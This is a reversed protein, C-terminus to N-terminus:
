PRVAKAIALRSRAFRKRTKAVLMKYDDDLTIAHAAKPAEQYSWLSIAWATLVLLYTASRVYPWPGSFERHLLIMTGLQAVSAGLFVGYGLIVGKLNRSMPIKYVFFVVLLAALASSQVIRLDLELKMATLAALWSTGESGAVIAKAFVLAFVFMLVNRAMRATGPFAKLGSRYIEFIVACGVVLSAFQSGWYVQAYIGHFWQYVILRGLEELFIYGIYVYFAPYEAFQKKRWGRLM